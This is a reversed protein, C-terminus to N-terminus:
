FVDHKKPYEMTSMAVYHHSEQTNRSGRFSKQQPAMTTPKYDLSNRTEALSPPQNNYHPASPAMFSVTFPVKINGLSL